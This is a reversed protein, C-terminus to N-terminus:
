PEDRPEAQWSKRVASRRLFEMALFGQGFTVVSLLSVWLPLGGGLVAHEAGFMVAAVVGVLAARRTLMIGRMRDDDASAM